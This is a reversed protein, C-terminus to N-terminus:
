SNIQNIGEKNKKVKELINFFQCFRDVESVFSKHSLDLVFQIPLYQFVNSKVSECYRHM